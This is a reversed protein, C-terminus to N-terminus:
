RLLEIRRCIEPASDPLTIEGAERLRQYLDRMFPEPLERVVFRSPVCSLLQRYRYMYGLWYAYDQSVGELASLGSEADPKDSRALTLTTKFLDDATVALLPYAALTEGQDLGAHACGGDLLSAVPSNMFLDAYRNPDLGYQRAQSFVQGQRDCLSLEADTIARPIREIQQRKKGGASHAVSKASGSVPNTRM